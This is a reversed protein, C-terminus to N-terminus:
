NVRLFSMPQITLGNYYQIESSYNVYIYTERNYETLYLGEKIKKHDTIKADRLDTFASDFTKYADLAQQSWNEYYNNEKDDVTLSFAPLAGFELCRLLQNDYDNVDNLYPGTYEMTGRLVMQVFPEAVYDSSEAYTTNIPLCSIIDANKLAYLNGHDVMLNKNTSLSISQNFIGSAFEQRMTSSTSSLVSGVDGLCYGKFDYKKMNKSFSVVNASLTKNDKVDGDFFNATVFFGFGQSSLYSMLSELSDRSGYRSQVKFKKLLGDYRINLANVGKAKLVSAMDEVNEYKNKSSAVVTVNVPVNGEASVSRTSLMGDRIMQERCMSAISACTAASGSIFKYSVKLTETTPYSFAARVYDTAGTTAKIKSIAEGGTIIGAFASTGHKLGFAGFVAPHNNEDTKAPDSGYTDLVYTTDDSSTLNMLAGPGDPIVIFDGTYAETVAGFTPLIELAIVTLSSDVADLKVSASFVGDELSLELTVPVAVSPNKAKDRFTYEIEVGDASTVCKAQGMAVANDQSNMKYWKSGDTVEINLLSGISNEVQPLAYYLNGTTDKVAIACNAEDLLLEYLGSKYISQYKEAVSTHYQAGQDTAEVVKLGEETFHSSCGALSMVLMASLLICVIRKVKSFGYM